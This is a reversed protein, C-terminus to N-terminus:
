DLRSRALRNESLSDGVIDGVDIIRLLREKVPPNDFALPLEEQGIVAFEISVRTRMRAGLFPGLKKIQQGVRVFVGIESRGIGFDDGTERRTKLFPPLHRLTLDQGLPGIRGPYPLLIKDNEEM